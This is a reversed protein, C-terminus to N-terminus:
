DQARRGAAWAQLRAWLEGGQESALRQRLFVLLLGELGRLAGDVLSIRELVLGELGELGEPGGQGPATPPLKLAKPALEAAELNLWYEEGDLTLGLRLGEVLKGRRLAQRAEAMSAERGKVTVRTGEQGQMPGLVLREGLLVDVLRGDELQVSGEEEAVYWLWTLFEQGLFVKENLLALVDM